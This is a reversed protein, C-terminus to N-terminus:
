PCVRWCLFSMSGELVGYMEAESKASIGWFCAVWVFIESRTKTQVVFTKVPCRADFPILDQDTDPYEGEGVGTHLTFTFEIPIPVGFEFTAGTGTRAASHTLEAHAKQSSGDCSYELEVFGTAAAACDDDILKAVGDIEATAEYEVEGVQDDLGGKEHVFTASFTGVAVACSMYDFVSGWPIYGWGEGEAELAGASAWAWTHGHMGATEDNMYDPNSSLSVLLWSGRATSALVISACLVLILKM